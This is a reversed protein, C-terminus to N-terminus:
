FQTKVKNITNEYTIIGKKDQIQNGMFTFTKPILKIEGFKSIIKSILKKTKSDAASIVIYNDLLLESKENILDDVVANISNTTPNKIVLYGLEEFVFEVSSLGSGSPGAIVVINKM